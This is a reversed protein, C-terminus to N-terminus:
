KSQDLIGRYYDFIKTIVLKRMEWNLETRSLIKGDARLDKKKL